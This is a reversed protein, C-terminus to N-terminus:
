ARRVTLGHQVYLLCPQGTPRGCLRPERVHLCLGTERFVHGSFWTPMYHLGLPPRLIDDRWGGLRVASLRDNGLLRGFLVDLLEFFIPDGRNLPRQFSTYVYTM